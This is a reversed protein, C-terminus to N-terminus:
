KVSPLKALRLKAYESPRTPDDKDDDPGDVVKAYAARAADVLGYKEAILGQVM